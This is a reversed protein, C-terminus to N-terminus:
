QHRLYQLRIHM